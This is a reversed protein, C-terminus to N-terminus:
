KMKLRKSRLFLDTFCLLKAVEKLQCETWNPLVLIFCVCIFSSSFFLTACWGKCMNQAGATEEDRAKEQNSLM